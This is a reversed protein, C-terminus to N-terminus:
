RGDGGSGGSSGAGAPARPAIVRVPLRVTEEGAVDTGILVAADGPKADAPATVRFTFSVVPASRDGDGEAVGCAQGRLSAIKVKEGDDRRVTIPASTKGAEVVVGPPDLQVLGDIIGFVPVEILPQSPDTTFLRLTATFPGPPADKKVRVTAEFRRRDIVEVLDVELLANADTEGPGVIQITEIGLLPKQDPREIVIAREKGEGRRVRQLELIEPAWIVEGTLTAIVPVNVVPQKPHDTTVRLVENVLGPPADSSLRVTLEIAPRAGAETKVPASTATIWSRPTEIGKVTFTRTKKDALVIRVKRELEAGRVTAGFYAAGPVVNWLSVIEAGIRVASVYQGYDKERPDNTYLYVRIDQYGIKDKSDFVIGITGAEGAALTKKSTLVATCGCTTKIKKIDLPADGENRFAISLERKEGQYLSGLDYTKEDFKIRPHPGPPVEGDRPLGPVGVPPRDGQASAPAAGLLVVLPLVVAVATAAVTSRPTM